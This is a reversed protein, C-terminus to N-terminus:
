GITSKRRKGRAYYLCFRSFTYASQALYLRLAESVNGNIGCYEIRTDFKSYREHTNVLENPYARNCGSINVSGNPSRLPKEYEFSVM